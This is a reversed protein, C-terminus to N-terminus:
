KKNQKTLRGIKRSSSCTVNPWDVFTIKSFQHPLPLRHSITHFCWLIVINSVPFLMSGDWVPVSHYNCLSSKGLSKLPADRSHCHCNKRAQLSYATVTLWSCRNLRFQILSWIGKLLTLASSAHEQPTNRHLHHHCLHLGRPRPRPRLSGQPWSITDKAKAKFSYDKAKAKAESALDKAKAECLLRVTRTKPKFRFGSITVHQYSWSWWQLIYRPKTRWCLVPREASGHFATCCSACNV